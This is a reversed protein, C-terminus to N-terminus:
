QLGYEALMQRCTQQEVPHLDAPKLGLTLAERLVRAPSAQARPQPHPRALHFLRAPTRADAIAEKLDNLAADTKGLALHVVGRTDLLDARRGQGRVATEILPLAKSAEGTRHALLWAL